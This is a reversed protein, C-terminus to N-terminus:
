HGDSVRVHLRQQNIRAVPAQETIHAFIHDASDIGAVLQDEGVHTAVSDRHLHDKTEETLVPNGLWDFLKSDWRVVPDAWTALHSM